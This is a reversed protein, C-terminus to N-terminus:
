FDEERSERTVTGDPWIILVPKSRSRAYRTCAWTGSKLIESFEKPCAILIDTSDVIDRNRELYPKPELHVDGRKYARKSPNLPPHIVIKTRFKAINHAQEDAGIADGHHLETPNLKIFEQAFTEQQELTMGKRTGTFGVKMKVFSWVDAFAL